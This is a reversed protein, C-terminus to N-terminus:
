PAKKAAVVRCPYTSTAYFGSYCPSPTHYGTVGFTGSASLGDDIKTDISMAERLNIGGGDSSLYTGCTGTCIKYLYRGGYGGNPAIGIFIVNQGRSFVPITSTSTTCLVIIGARSNLVSRPYSVGVVGAGSPGGDTNYNGIGAAALQSFLQGPEGLPGGTPDTLICETTSGSTGNVTPQIQGNGDGNLVARGNQDTTGLFDTANICDGPLCNFKLRFTNIQTDIDTAQKIQSRLNAADILDRGVFIGGVILGIIVLVISLEVLTFGENQKM